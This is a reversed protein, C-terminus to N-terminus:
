ENFNRLYWRLDSAKVNKGNVKRLDKIAWSETARSKIRKIAEDKPLNALSKNNREVYKYLGRDNCMAVQLWYNGYPDSGYVKYTNPNYRTSKKKKM